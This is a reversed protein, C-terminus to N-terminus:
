PACRTSTVENEFKGLKLMGNQLCRGCPGGGGRARQNDVRAPLQSTFSTVRCRWGECLGVKVYYARVGPSSQVSWSSVSDWDHYGHGQVHFKQWDGSKVLVSDRSVLKVVHANRTWNVCKSDSKRGQHRSTKLDTRETSPATTWQM